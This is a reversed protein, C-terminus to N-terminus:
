IHVELVRRLNQSIARLPPWVTDYIRWRRALPKEGRRRGPSAQRSMHKAQVTLVAPQVPWLRPAIM